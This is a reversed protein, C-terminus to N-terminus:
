IQNFFTNIKNATELAYEIAEEATDFQKSEISKRVKDTCASWSGLRVALQGYWDVDVRITQIADGNEFKLFVGCGLWQHESVYRPSSAFKEYAAKLAAINEDMMDMRVREARARRNREEMQKM